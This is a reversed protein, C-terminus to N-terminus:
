DPPHSRAKRILDLRTTLANSQWHMLQLPGSNSGLMRRCLPIQPAASSTTRFITRVFLFFDGMFYKLFILMFFVSVGDVSLPLVWFNVFALYLFLCYFSWIFGSPKCDFTQHCKAVKLCKQNKVNMWVICDYMGEDKMMQPGLGWSSGFALVLWCLSVGVGYVFLQFFYNSTHRFTLERM